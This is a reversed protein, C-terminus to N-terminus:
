CSCVNLWCFTFEAHRVVYLDSTHASIYTTHVGACALIQNFAVCLMWAGKTESDRVNITNCIYVSLFVCCCFAYVFTYVALNFIYTYHVRKEKPMDGTKRAVLARSPATLRLYVDDLACVIENM